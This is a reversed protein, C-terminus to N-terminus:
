QRCLYGERLFDIFGSVERYLKKDLCSTMQKENLNDFKELENLIHREHMKLLTIILKNTLSKKLSIDILSKQLMNYHIYIKSIFQFLHWGFIKDIEKKECYLDTEIFAFDKLKRNFPFRRKFLNKNVLKIDGYLAAEALFVHDGGRYFPFPSMLKLAEKNYLSWFPASLVPNSIVKLFSDTANQETTDIYENQNAKRIFKDGEDYYDPLAYALSLFPSQEHAKILEFLYDKYITDNSSCLATFPSTGCSLAKRVNRVYGINTPNIYLHIKKKKYLKHSKILNVTRDTSNNDIIYVDFNNYSQREIGDLVDIITNQANYCPMVIDIRYDDHSYKNLYSYLLKQSKTYRTHNKNKNQEFDRLLSSNDGIQVQEGERVGILALRREVEVSHEPNKHHIKLIEQDQPGSFYWSFHRAAILFELCCAMIWKQPQQSQLPKHDFRPLQPLFPLNFTTHQGKEIARLLQELVQVAKSRLGLDAFARALNLAVPGSAQPSNFLPLLLHAAQLLHSFKKQSTTDDLQAACLHNATQLALQNEPKPAHERWTPMFKESWPLTRIYREWTEQPPADVGADETVVLGQEALQAATKPKLAVLKTLFPDPQLPSPAATVAQAGPVYRYLAYGYAQLQEISATDPQGDTAVRLLLIPAQQRLLTAAGQLVQREKGNVDIKIGDINPKGADQWWQDLSTLEIREDDDEPAITAYEQTTGPQLSGAGPAADLAQPLLHVNDMRNTALSQTLYSRAESGPEFAYVVGDQGVAQALPLTYVGFAAGVDVVTMEPRVALRLFELEPEYWKEQELLVYATLNAISPPTCVTLGYETKIPFHDEPLPADEPETPTKTAPEPTGQQTDQAGQVASLNGRAEQFDPDAQVAQQLYHAAESPKGLTYYAVGINNLVEATEPYRANLHLFADLAQQM